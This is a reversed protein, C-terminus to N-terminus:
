LSNGAGDTQGDREQGSGPATDVGVAEAQGDRHSQAERVLGRVPTWVEGDGGSWGVPGECRAGM